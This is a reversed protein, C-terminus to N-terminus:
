VYGWIAIKIEVAGCRRWGRVRGPQWGWGCGCDGQSVSDVKEIEVAVVQDQGGDNGSCLVWRKVPRENGNKSEEM